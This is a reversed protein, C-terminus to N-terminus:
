LTDPSDGSVVYGVFLNGRREGEAFEECHCQRAGVSPHGVSPHGVSPHGVAEATPEIFNCPMKEGGRFLHSAVLHAVVPHSAASHPVMSPSVVPHTVVPYSTVLHPM